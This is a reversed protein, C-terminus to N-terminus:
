VFFGGIPNTGGPELYESNKLANAIGFAIVEDIVPRLLVVKVFTLMSGSGLAHVETCPLAFRM